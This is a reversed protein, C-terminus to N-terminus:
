RHLGNAMRHNNAPSGNAKTIDNNGVIVSDDHQRGLFQIGDRAPRLRDLCPFTPDVAGDGLSRATLFCMSKGTRHRSRCKRESRRHLAETDEMCADEYSRNTFRQWTTAAVIELIQKTADIESCHRRNNSSPLIRFVYSM